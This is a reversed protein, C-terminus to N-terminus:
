YYADCLCYVGDEVTCMLSIDVTCGSRRHEQFFKELGEVVSFLDDVKDTYFCLDDGDDKFERNNVILYIPTGYGDRINGVTGYPKDKVKYERGCNPCYFYYM